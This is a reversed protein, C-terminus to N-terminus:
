NVLTFLQKEDYDKTVSLVLHFGVRTTNRDRSDIGEHNTRLITLGSVSNKMAFEAVTVLALRFKEVDSVVLDPLRDDHIYKFTNHQSLNVSLGEICNNIEDQLVFTTRSLKADVAMFNLSYQMQRLNSLM